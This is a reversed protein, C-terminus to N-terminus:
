EDLKNWVTKNVNPGDSELSQLQSLLIENDKLSSLLKEALLVGTAHGMLYIKSTHVKIASGTELWFRIKIDHQKKVQKNPTEDYYITFLSSSKRVNETNLTNFYPGVAESILYSVKSLSMSFTKPIIEPFM